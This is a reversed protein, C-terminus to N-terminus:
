PWNSMAQRASSTESVIIMAAASEEPKWSGIIRGAREVDEPRGRALLATAYSLSQKHDHVKGVDQWLLDLEPDFVAEFDALLSDM